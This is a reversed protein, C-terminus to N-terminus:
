YEHPFLITCYNYEPPYDGSDIMNKDLQDIIWVKRGKEDTYTQLYDCGRNEEAFARIDVFISAVEQPTLSQSVEKTVYCSGNFFYKQGEQEQPQRKWTAM